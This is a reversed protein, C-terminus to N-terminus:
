LEVVRPTWDGDGSEVPSRGERRHPDLYPWPNEPEVDAGADPACLDDEATVGVGRADVFELELHGQRRDEEDGGLRIGDSRKM